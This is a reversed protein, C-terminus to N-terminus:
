RDENSQRQAGPLENLRQLNPLRAIKGSSTKILWRYPAVVVRDVAVGLRVPVERRAYAEITRHIASDESRTEAIVVLKQTGMKYDNAGVAAVRGTIVDPHEGVINEVDQPYINVGGIIILDSMRGTIFLTQGVRYGLDGTRYWGHHDAKATAEPNGYYGHYAARSKIEVEGVCRDGIPRGQDDVIRYETGDLARGVGLMRVAQAHEEVIVVARRDWQLFNRDVCEVKIPERNGAAFVSNVVEAMGYVISLAERRFGNQAFREAFAEHSYYFCPEAGNCCIRLSSLDLAASESEQIRAAMYSFAFNPQLYVTPRYKDVLELAAVPRAVWHMPSLLTYNTGLEISHLAIGVLGWDHHLPVWTLFSDNETLEFFEEVGRIAALVARHSLAAGKQLGTSGSSFQILAIDEAEHGVPGGYRDGTTLQERLLIAVANGTIETVGELSDNVELDTLIARPRCTEIMGKLGTYYRTPDLKTTLSPLFAPIAGLWMAGMFAPVLDEQHPLLVLVVSGKEVGHRAYHHAFQQTRDLLEGFTTEVPNRDPFIYRSYLADPREQARSELCEILTSPKPRM